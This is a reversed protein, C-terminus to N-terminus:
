LQDQESLVLCEATSESGPLIVGMVLHSYQPEPFGAQHECGTPPLASIQIYIKRFGSVIRQVATSGVWGRDKWKEELM